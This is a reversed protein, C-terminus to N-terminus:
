AGSQSLIVPDNIIGGNEDCLPAYMCQGIECRSIDRPTILEVLKLADTGTIEVQRECAVDWIQVYNCLHEYDSVVDNFVLPLTMKNYISFAQVGQELVRDEFPSARLRRSLIM